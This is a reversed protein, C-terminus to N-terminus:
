DPLWAPRRLETSSRLRSRRRWSPNLIIWLEAFQSFML